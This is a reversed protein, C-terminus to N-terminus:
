SPNETIAPEDVICENEKLETRLERYDIGPLPSDGKRIALGVATGAAEGMAMCPAQDRFPGLIPREVSVARGPCILNLIRKPLMIRYPIPFYRHRAGALKGDDPNLSPKHPDPLDWGGASLAITDEFETEEVLEKMSLVFDGIIRRTERVGM